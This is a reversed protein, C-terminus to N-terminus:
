VGSTALLKLSLNDGWRSTRVGRGCNLKEPGPLVDSGEVVTTVVVPGNGYKGAAADEFM